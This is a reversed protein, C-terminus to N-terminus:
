KLGERKKCADHIAMAEDASKNAVYYAARAESNCKRLKASTDGGSAAKDIESFSPGCGSLVLTLAICALGGPLVTLKGGPAATGSGGGADGGGGGKNVFITGLAALLASVVAAASGPAFIHVAVIAAMFAVAIAIRQNMTM